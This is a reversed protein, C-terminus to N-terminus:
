SAEWPNIVALGCGEFGAIDRSVMSAGHARAISAIMLDLPAVPRGTQRRIAYLDAYANAAETDFALVREGFEEFMERATTELQRRRRGNPMIALGSFIEAHSIATTFLRDEDQQAMWAAVEPVRGLQMMASLINTDLVFM